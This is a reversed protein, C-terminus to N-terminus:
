ENKLFALHAFALEILKRKFKLSQSDGSEIRDGIEDFTLGEYIEISPNFSLDKNSRLEEVIFDEETDNIKGIYQVIKEEYEEKKHFGLIEINILTRFKSWAEEYNSTAKYNNLYEEVIETLESSYLIKKAKKTKELTNFYELLKIGDIGGVPENLRFDFAIAHFRRSGYLSEFSDRVLEMDIRGDKDIVDNGDPLGVNFQLCNIDVGKEKAIKKIKDIADSQDDNDIILLQKAM